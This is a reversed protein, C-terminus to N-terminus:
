FKYTKNSLTTKSIIINSKINAVAKFYSDEDIKLQEIIKKLEPHKKLYNENELFSKKKNM